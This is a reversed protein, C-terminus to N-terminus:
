LYLEDKELGFFKEIKRVVRDSPVTQRKLYKSVTQQRIGLYDALIEQTIGYLRMLFKLNYAFNSKEIERYLASEEDQEETLVLANFWEAASRANPFTLYITKLTTTNHYMVRFSKQSTQCLIFVSKIKTKAYRILCYKHEKYDFSIRYTLRVDRSLWHLFWHVRGGKPAGVRDQLVM